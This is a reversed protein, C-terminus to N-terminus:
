GCPKVTGGLNSRDGAVGWKWTCSGSAGRGFDPINHSACIGLPVDTGEVRRFGTQFVQVAGEASRVEGCYLCFLAGGPLWPQDEAM